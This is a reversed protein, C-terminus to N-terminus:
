TEDASPDTDADEESFDVSVEERRLGRIDRSTGMQGDEEGIWCVLPLDFPYWLPKVLRLLRAVESPNLVPLMWRPGDPAAVAAAVQRQLAEFGDHEVFRLALAARAGFAAQWRNKQKPLERAAVTLLRLTERVSEPTAEDPGFSLAEAMWHIPFPSSELPNGDLRYSRFVFAGNMIAPALPEAILGFMADLHRDDFTGRRFAEILEEESTLPQAARVRKEVERIRRVLEYM